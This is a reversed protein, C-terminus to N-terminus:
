NVSTVPVAQIISSTQENFHFTSPKSKDYLNLNKEKTQETKLESRRNMKMNEEMCIIMNKGNNLLIAEFKWKCFVKIGVNVNGFYM